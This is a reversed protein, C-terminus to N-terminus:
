EPQQKEGSGKQAPETKRADDRVRVIGPPLEIVLRLGTCYDLTGWRDNRYVQHFTLIRKLDLVDADFNMRWESDVGIPLNDGLGTLVSGGMRLASLGYITAKPRDDNWSRKYRERIKIREADSPWVLEDANGVINVMGFNNQKGNGVDRVRALEDFPSGFTETGTTRAIDGDAIENGWWYRTEAGGRMSLMWEGINPLRCILNTRDSVRAAIVGGSAADMCLVPKDPKSLYSFILPLQSATVRGDLRLKDEELAVWDDDFGMIAAFAGQSLETEMIYFARDTDFKVGGLTTSGPEILAFRLKTKGPFRVEIVNPLPQDDLLVHQEQDRNSTAAM